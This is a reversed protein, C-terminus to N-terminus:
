AAGRAQPMSPEEGPPAQRRDLARTIAWEAQQRPSRREEEAAKALAAAEERTLRIMLRPM